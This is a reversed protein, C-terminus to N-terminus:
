TGEVQLAYSHSAVASGSGTARIEVDIDLTSVGVDDGGKGGGNPRNVGIGGDHTADAHDNSITDLLYWTATTRNVGTNDALYHGIQTGTGSILQLVENLYQIDWNLGENTDPQDPWWDNTHDNADDTGTTLEAYVISGETTAADDWEISGDSDYAYQQRSPTPAVSSVDNTIDQLNPTSGGAAPATRHVSGGSLSGRQRRPGNFERMGLVHNLEGRRLRWLDEWKRHPTRWGQAIVKLFEPMEEERPSVMGFWGPRGPLIIATM